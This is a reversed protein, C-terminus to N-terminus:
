QRHQRRAQIALAQLAAERPAENKNTQPTSRRSNHHDHRDNSRWNHDRDSYRLLWGFDFGPKPYSRQGYRQRPQLIATVASIDSGPSVYLRWHKGYRAPAPIRVEHHNLHVTPSSYHGVTLRTHGHSGHVVVAQLVYNDLDLRQQRYIMRGLSLRKPGHVHVPLHVRIVGHNDPRHEAFVSGSVLAVGLAFLRIISKM